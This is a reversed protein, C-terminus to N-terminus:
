FTPNLYMTLPWLFLIALKQQVPTKRFNHIIMTSV